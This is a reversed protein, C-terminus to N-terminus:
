VRSKAKNVYPIFRARFGVNFKIWDIEINTRNKTYLKTQLDFVSFSQNLFRGINEIKKAIVISNKKYNMPKAYNINKEIYIHNKYHPNEKIFETIFTKILTFKNNLSMKKWFNLKNTINTAPIGAYTSFPETSKTLISGTMIISNRGLTLGPSIIAGGIIWVNDKLVLPKSGFLTCGEILEGSAVHTWLQSQTGIRVNNGIELRDTSNLISHQGIWCNYGITLAKYGSLLGGNHLQSYDLMEFSPVLIQNNFGIFTNDGLKFYQMPNEIGKIITNKEIITNYGIHVKAAEITVNDEVKAGKCISLKDSKIFVNNGFHCEKFKRLDNLKV